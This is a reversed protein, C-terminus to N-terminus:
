ILPEKFCFSVGVYYVGDELTTFDFEQVYNLEGGSKLLPSEIDKWKGPQELTTELTVVFTKAPIKRKDTNAFCYSYRLKKDAEITARDALFGSKVQFIEPYELRAQRVERSWLFFLVNGVIGITFLVWLVAILRTTKM